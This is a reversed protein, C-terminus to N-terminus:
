RDHGPFAGVGPSSTVLSVYEFSHIRSRTGNFGNPITKQGGSRALKVVIREPIHVDFVLVPREEAVLIVGNDRTPLERPQAQRAFPHAIM